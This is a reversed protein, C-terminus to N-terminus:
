ESLIKSGVHEVQMFLIQTNTPIATGASFALLCINVKKAKSFQEELLVKFPCVVLLKMKPDLLPPVMWLM